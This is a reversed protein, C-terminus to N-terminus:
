GRSPNAGLHGRVVHAARLRHGARRASDKVRDPSSTMTLAFSTLSLMGDVGPLQDQMCLDGMGRARRFARAPPVAKARVRIPMESAALGACAAVWPGHSM